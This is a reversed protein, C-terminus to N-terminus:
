ILELGSDLNSIMPKTAQTYPKASSPPDLGLEAMMQCVQAFVLPDPDHQLAPLVKRLAKPSAANLYALVAERVFGTPSKLCALIQEPMLKWRARCAVHFCCAIVWDSLFHRLDLLYRLRQRPKMPRYSIFESLYHLKEHDSVADLINLVTQKNAIDLTNDLIELGRAKADRSDSQLNFAAARIKDSNYLFQMLLFLREIADAESDRLARHLLEIERVTSTITLDLRAAYLHALFQLEQTMLTEIGSRGLQDAVADIGKEQPLRLLVHLLMKRTTGWSTMLQSVLVQIAEPTGIQGITSWAQNRVVRPKYVNEALQQLLPIADNELRVLARQTAERTSQDYLGQLLAPYYDEAHTAAIAELVACRVQLSEDQLLPQIYLRLSQLYLADALALCGLRREQEQKHTLMRRLIDTAEAKEQPNGLRLMLATATSRVIPDLTSQCYARLPEIAPEPDTLWRYRMAAAMVEPRTSQEMVSKVTAAYAPNPYKLMVELSQQQLEPSLNLLQPALIASATKPDTRILLDIYADKDFNSDPRNLVEELERKLRQADVQSLSLKGWDASLVLVELYKARLKQVTLWWLGALLATCGLFVLHQEIAVSSASFQNQFLWLVALMSIGTLGTSLPEAIGRVQSQVRSRQAEPLPQFLVPSTSAVLTYRLLEDVFKLLTVGVFLPLLRTLSLSSLLLIVIPSFQAVRFIGFREIVRGSVFWQTILELIGLCASFLALFDAITEVSVTQELQSLYQFDLLLSLVQLLVFFVIVLFIYRRLPGQVQRTAFNQQKDTARRRSAEPFFQCYVRTLYFLIAAGGCLMVGALGIVNPLGILSRLPPLSLGSLVDAALIGSSILPYTRKIERITFLQNATISTNIENIVYVAELWLRMLFITYGGLLAPHLGLRFLFLPVAMLGATIVIVQRLPLLKQLWAYLVGFGTGIGASAIYIWPLSEAGYEGLFLAAVSVELWLIGVSSFTYFAFMLFTRESEEPRLNLWRLWGQSTSSRSRNRPVSKRERKM